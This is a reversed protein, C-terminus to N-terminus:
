LKNGAGRTTKAGRDVVFTSVSVPAWGAAPLVDAGAAKTPLPCSWPCLPLGLECEPSATSLLVRM